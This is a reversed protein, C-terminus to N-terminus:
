IFLEIKFKQMAPSWIEEPAIGYGDRSTEAVFSVYLVIRILFTNIYLIANLVLNGTSSSKQLYQLLVSTKIQKEHSNRKDVLLQLQIFSLVACLFM